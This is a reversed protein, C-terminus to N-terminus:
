KEALRNGNGLWAVAFWLLHPQVLQEVKRRQAVAPDIVTRSESGGGHGDTLHRIWFIV